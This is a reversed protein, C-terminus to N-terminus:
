PMTECQLRDGPLIKMFDRCTGDPQLPPTAFYAQRRDTPIARHRYCDLKKPCGDGKCMAIDPM